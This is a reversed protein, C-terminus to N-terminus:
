KFSGEKEQAEFKQLTNSLVCWARVFEGPFSGLLKNDLSDPSEAALSNNDMSEQRRTM